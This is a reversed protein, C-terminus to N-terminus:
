EVNRVMVDGFLNSSLYRTGVCSVGCGDLSQHKLGRCMVLFGRCM